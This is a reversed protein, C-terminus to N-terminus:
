SSSGVIEFGTIRVHDGSNYWVSVAGPAVLKAGWQQDSIYEIPAKLMGSRITKIGCSSGDTDCAPIVPLQYTGPAVHVIVGETGVTLAQSAHTITAWPSKLSGDNSDSGSPSVYYERKAPPQNFVSPCSGPATPIMFAMGAFSEQAAPDYANQVSSESCSLKEIAAMCSDFGSRNAVLSGNSEAQIIESLKLNSNKPLGLQYDIDSVNQFGAECQSLSIQSHCRTVVSCAQTVLTKAAATLPNGTVTEQLIVQEVSPGGFKAPACNNYVLALISFAAMSALLRIKM